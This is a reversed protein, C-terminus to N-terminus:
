SNDKCKFYPFYSFFTDVFDNFVKDYNKTFYDYYYDEIKTLSALMQLCEQYELSDTKGQESLYAM